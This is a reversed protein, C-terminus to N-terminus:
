KAIDKLAEETDRAAGGAMLNARVKRTVGDSRRGTSGEQRRGEQRIYIM